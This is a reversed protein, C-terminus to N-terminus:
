RSNPASMDSLILIEPRYEFHMTDYFIWKGGWIFGCSEFARIVAGPPHFRRDYSVTWWEPKTRAAWLWYTEKGGLSKPLIDIAAGYAHFSRSQTDAISRWNWGDLSGIGNIWARLEPDTKAGALILEEVLSLEELIAYNIMVTHGFFRLSKVREYSEDRTEARWLADYFHQSRKPPHERRRGAMERFRAAEEPGPEKWPPLEAPYNYFPQPDYEEARGLLEEPLLRGGSYYFWTGGPNKAAATGATTIPADLLKLAWDGQRFETQVVRDPYAAALAKVVQEARRRSDASGPPAAPNVDRASVAEVPPSDGPNQEPKNETLVGAASVPPAEGVRGETKAKQTKGGAFVLSM